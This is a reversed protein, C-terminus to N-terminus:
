QTRFGLVKRQCSLSRLSKRKWSFRKWLYLMSQFSVSIIRHIKSTIAENWLHRALKQLNKVVRQMCNSSRELKFFVPKPKKHEIVLLCFGCPEHREIIESSRRDSTNSCTAVPRILSEFDFYMVYPALWRSQYNQFQLDNKTEDPLKITAAENQMCTENHREYNEATYCVQFCNRCKKSSSRPVQQELNSILNRLDKICVYHYARGNSLLLLDLIFPLEQQKWIRLPILYEKQYRFVNIQVKSLNEFRLIQNLAMPMEFDGVPQHKM